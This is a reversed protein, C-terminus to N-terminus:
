SSRSLVESFIQDSVNGGCIVLAVRRGGLDKSLKLYCAVAVAAAGEIRLNHEQYVLRMADKIDEESATMWKDVFKACLPLTIADPEIGGATGDSLTSQFPLEVIHGIEVSKQM